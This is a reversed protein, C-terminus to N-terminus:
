EAQAVGIGLKPLDRLSDSLGPRLPLSLKGRHPAVV